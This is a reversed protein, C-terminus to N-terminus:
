QTRRNPRYDVTKNSKISNCSKCLPQINSIHSTGGKTVPIVHDATLKRRKNCRLCRKHYETCLAIWQGATFSGGNGLIRARRKHYAAKAKAPNKRYRDREYKPNNKRWRRLARCRQKVFNVDKCKKKCWRQRQHKHQEPHEQKWLKTRKLAKEKSEPM